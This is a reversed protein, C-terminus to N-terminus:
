DGAVCRVEFVISVVVDFLTSNQISNTGWGQFVIRSTPQLCDPDSCFFDCWARGNAITEAIRRAVNDGTFEPYSTRFSEQWVLYFTERCTPISHGRRRRPKKWDMYKVYTLEHEPPSDGISEEPFPVFSGAAQLARSSRLVSGLGTFTMDLADIFDLARPARAAPETGRLGARTDADIGIVLDRREDTEEDTRKEAQVPEKKPM